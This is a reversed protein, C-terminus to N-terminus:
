ADKAHTCQAQGCLGGLAATKRLLLQQGEGESMMGMTMERDRRRGKGQRSGGCALFRSWRRSPWCCSSNKKWESDGPEQKKRGRPARM